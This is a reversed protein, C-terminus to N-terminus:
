AWRHPQFGLPVVLVQEVHRGRWAAGIGQQIEFLVEREVPYEFVSASPAVIANFKGHLAEKLISLVNASRGGAGTLAVRM